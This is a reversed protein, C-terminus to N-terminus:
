NLTNLLLMILSLNILSFDSNLGEFKFLTLSFCPLLSFLSDQRYKVLGTKHNIAGNKILLKQTMTSPKKFLKILVFNM